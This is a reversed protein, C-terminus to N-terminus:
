SICTFGIRGVVMKVKRHVYMNQLCRLHWTNWLVAIKGTTRVMFKPTRHLGKDVPVGNVM